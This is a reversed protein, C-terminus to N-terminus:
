PRSQQLGLLDGGGDVDAVGGDVDAVGGGVDAVGGDVDADGGDVDTRVLAQSQCVIFSQCTKSCYCLGKLNQASIM